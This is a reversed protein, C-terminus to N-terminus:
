VYRRNGVVAKVRKLVAPLFARTDDDAAVAQKIRMLVYPKDALYKGVVPKGGQRLAFHGDAVDPVAGGAASRTVVTLGYLDVMLLALEGECMVAVEAVRESEAVLQLQRTGNKM